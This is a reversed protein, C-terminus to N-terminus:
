IMLGREGSRIFFVDEQTPNKLALQNSEENEFDFVNKLSHYNMNEINLSASIDKNKPLYFSQQPHEVFSNKSLFNRTDVKQFSDYEFPNQFSQSFENKRDQEVKKKPYYFVQQNGFLSENNSLFGTFDNYINLPKEKNNNTKYNNSKEYQQFPELFNKNFNMTKTKQKASISNEVSLLSSTNFSKNDIFPKTNQLAEKNKHNQKLKISSINM